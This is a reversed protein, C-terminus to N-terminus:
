LLKDYNKLVKAKFSFGLININHQMVCFVKDAVRYWNVIVYYM